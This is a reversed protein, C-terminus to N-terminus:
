DYHNRLIFLKYYEIMQLM